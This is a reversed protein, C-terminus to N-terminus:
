IKFLGQNIPDIFLVGCEKFRFLKPFVEAVRKVVSM